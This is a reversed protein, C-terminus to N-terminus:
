HRAWIRELAPPERYIATRSPTAVSSKAENRMQERVLGLNDYGFKLVECSASIIQM